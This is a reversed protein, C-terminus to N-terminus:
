PAPGKALTVSGHHPLHLVDSWSVAVRDGPHHPSLALELDRATAIRAGGFETITDGFHLGLAEAPTNAHVRTVRAGVAYGSSDTADEAAVGLEASLGIVVEADARGAAIRRAADLAVDTRVAATGGGTHGSEILGVVRGARDVVPGGSMGPKTDLTSELMNTYDAGAQEGDPETSIDESLGTIRGRVVLPAPDPYGIGLVADDVQASAPDAFTATTLGSAGKLRILAVDAAPDAGIIAADYTRGRGAVQATIRDAQFTVHEDTLVLGDPTLVIGSRGAEGQDYHLELELDVTAPVVRAALAAQDLALGAPPPVVQAAPIADAGPPPATAIYTVSAPRHGGGGLIVARVGAPLWNTSRAVVTLGIAAVLLAAVAILIPSRSRPARPKAAPALPRAPVWRQGDWWWRGDPSYQPPSVPRLQEDRGGQPAM